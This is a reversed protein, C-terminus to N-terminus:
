DTSRLMFGKTVDDSIDVMSYEFNRSLRLDGFSKRFISICIELIKSDMRTFILLERADAQVCVRILVRKGELDLDNISLKNSLSM